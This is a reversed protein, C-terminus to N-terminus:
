IRSLKYILYKEDKPGFFHGIFTEVIKFGLKEHIKVSGINDEDVVSYIDVDPYIEMVHKVLSTAIGKGEYGKMTGIEWIYVSGDKVELKVDFEEQEVFDSKTYVTIYGVAEDVGDIYYLYNEMDADTVAEINSENSIFEKTSSDYIKRIESLNVNKLIKM